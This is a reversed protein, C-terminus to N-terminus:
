KAIEGEKYKSSLRCCGAWWGFVQLCQYSQSQQYTFDDQSARWYLLCRLKILNHASSSASKVKKSGQLYATIFDISWEKYPPFYLDAESTLLKYVESKSLAKTGLDLLNLQAYSDM